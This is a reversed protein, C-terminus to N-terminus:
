SHIEIHSPETSYSCCKAKQLEWGGNPKLCIQDHFTNVSCELESVETLPINNMRTGRLWASTPMSPGNIVSAFINKLLLIDFLLLALCSCALTTEMWVGRGLQCGFRRTGLLLATLWSCEWLSRKLSSSHYAHHFHCSKAQLQPLLTVSAISSWPFNHHLCPISARFCCFRSLIISSQQSPM